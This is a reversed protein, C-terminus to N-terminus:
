KNLFYTITKINDASTNQIYLVPQMREVCFKVKNAPRRWVNANKFAKRGALSGTCGYFCEFTEM